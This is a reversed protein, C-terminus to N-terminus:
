FDKERSLTQAVPITRFDARSRFDEIQYNIHKDSLHPWIYVQRRPLKLCDCVTQISNLASHALEGVPLRSVGFADSPKRMVLLLVCALRSLYPDAPIDDVSTFVKKAFM